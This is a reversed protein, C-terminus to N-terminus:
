QETDGIPSENATEADSFAAAEFPAGEIDKLAVPTRVGVPPVSLMECVLVTAPPPLWVSQVTVIAGGRPTM